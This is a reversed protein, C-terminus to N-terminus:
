EVINKNCTPCRPHQKLWDDVCNKHYIHQCSLLRITDHIDFNEKCISCSPQQYTPQIQNYEMTSTHESIDVDNFGDLDRIHRYNINMHGFITDVNNANNQAISSQYLIFKSIFIITIHGLFIFLSYTLLLISLLRPLSSDILLSILGFLTIISKGTHINALSDWSSFSKYIVAISDIFLYSIYLNIYNYPFLYISYSLCSVLFFIKFYNLFNSIKTIYNIYNFIFTNNQLLHNNDM